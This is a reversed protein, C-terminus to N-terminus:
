PHCNLRGWAWHGDCAGTLRSLAEAQGDDIELIASGAPHLCWRLQHILSRTFRMGDEGGDLASRPEHRAVELTELNGSPIYPLNACILMFRGALPELLNAQIMNCRDAVHHDVANM